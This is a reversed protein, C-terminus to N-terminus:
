VAERSLGPGKARLAEGVLRGAGHLAVRGALVEGGSAEQHSPDGEELTQQLLLWWRWRRNNVVDKKMLGTLKSQKGAKEKILCSVGLPSSVQQNLCYAESIWSKM